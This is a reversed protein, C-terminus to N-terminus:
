LSEDGGALQEADHATRLLLSARKTQGHRAEEEDTSDGDGQKPANFSKCPRLHFSHRPLDENVVDVLVNHWDMETLMTAIRQSSEACKKIEEKWEGDPTYSHYLEFLYGSWSGQLCGVTSPPPNMAFSAGASEFPTMPMEIPRTMPM